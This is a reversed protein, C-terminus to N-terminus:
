LVQGFTVNAYFSRKVKYVTKFNGFRKDNCINIKIAKRQRKANLSMPPVIEAILSKM